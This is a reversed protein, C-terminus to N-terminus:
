IRTYNIICIHTITVNISYTQFNHSSIADSLINCQTTPRPTRYLKPLRDIDAAINKYREFPRYNLISIIKLLIKHRQGTSNIGYTGRSVAIIWIAHDFRQFINGDNLRTNTFVLPPNYPLCGAPQGCSIRKRPHRSYPQGQFAFLPFFFSFFNVM